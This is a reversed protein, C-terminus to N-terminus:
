EFQRCARSTYRSEPIGQVGSRGRPELPANAAEPRTCRTCTSPRVARLKQHRCRTVPKSLTIKVPTQGVMSAIARGRGRARHHNWVRCRDHKTRVFFAEANPANAQSLHLARAPVQIGAQFVERKRLRGKDTPREEGVLSVIGALPFSSHDQTCLSGRQVGFSATTPGSSSKSDGQGSLTEASGSRRRDDGLLWKQQLRGCRSPAALAKARFLARRNEEVQLGAQTFGRHRRGHSLLYPLGM